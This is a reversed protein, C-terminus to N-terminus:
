DFIRKYAAEITDVEDASMSWDAAKVNAEATSPKSSGLLACTMGPQALAWNIAVSAVSAGRMDAIGKFVGLLEQVKSWMPEDYYPYFNARKENEGGTPKSTIKGTLIGGGLPGYALVGVNKEACFPIVGSEIANRSLVSLQPQVSAIDAINIANQIQEVSFNSVGITRIKGEDRMKVLEELAADISNNYDPWHIQYLDIYDTQMHKLSRELEIRMIVPNLCRIYCGHLRLVGLKTAIIVKDRRGKLARGVLKESEFDLGYGPSTDVLNVGGDLSAHVARIAADDDVDGFFDNGMGWTGHGIVSVDLGSNGLKRYQM